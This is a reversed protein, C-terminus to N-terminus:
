GVDGHRVRGEGAAAAELVVQGGRGREDLRPDGLHGGLRAGLLRHGVQPDAHLAAAGVGEGADAGVRQGPRQRGLHHPVPARRHERLGVLQDAGLGVDQLVDAVTSTARSKRRLIATKLSRTLQCPAVASPLGDPPLTEAAEVVDHQLRDAGGALAVPPHPEVVHEVVRLRQARLPKTKMSLGPLSRSDTAPWTAAPQLRIVNVVPLPEIM